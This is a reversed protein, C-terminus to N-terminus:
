ADALARRVEDTRQEKSRRRRSPTQGPVAYVGVREPNEGEELESGLPFLNQADILLAVHGLGDKAWTKVELKGEVSLHKGVAAWRTLEARRLGGFRVVVQPHKCATDVVTGRIQLVDAGDADFRQEAAHTILM